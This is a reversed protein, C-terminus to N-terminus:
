EDAPRELEEFKAKMTPNGRVLKKITLKEAKDNALRLNRESSLLADKTKQLQAMTKDIGEIAESFRRSALEYNKYFKDKFDNLDNEFNTVDINQNKILALESRYGQSRLASDRLLTIIPIFSQPRVVYMKEHRYSVDAIGSNYFDNELELLSVLVAYECGKAVRDRNLKDLFDENKKKTATEDLETKMDFMISVIENGDDDHERYIYDGKSGERVDSDKEFYANKFATARMRNFEIECHQELTEGVMKTSQKAKFDRYYAIQEDKQRLQLEYSEKMSKESLKAETDKVELANKLRDREKEIEDIREKIELQNAVDLRGLDAKLEAIVGDKRTMELELVSDQDRVRNRLQELEKELDSRAETVALKEETKASELRARLEAFEVDREAMRERFEREVREVALEVSKNKDENWLGERSAIEKEFERDRIQKAVDAWGSEDVKFVAGCRPCSIENM